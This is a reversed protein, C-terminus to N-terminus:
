KVAERAIAAFTKDLEMGLASLKEGGESMYPAFVFSPKKYSLTATRDPNETLYVRIPAEIGAAVSAELMPLAFRPHFLGVVMNGPIKRGFVKMAGVTASARTVIGMKHARAAADLNKVLTAYDHRSPMVVWGQRAQVTSNQAQAASISVAPSASLALALAAATLCRRSRRARTQANM